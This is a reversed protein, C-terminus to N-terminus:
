KSIQHERGDTVLIQQLNQVQQDLKSRRLQFTTTQTREYRVAHVEYTMSTATRSDLFVTASCGCLHDSQCTGDTSYFNPPLPRVYLM